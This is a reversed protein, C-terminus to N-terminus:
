NAYSLIHKYRKCLATYDRPSVFLEEIAYMNEKNLDLELNSTQGSRTEYCSEVVYCKNDNETYFSKDEVMRPCYVMVLRYPNGNSDNKRRVVQYFWIDRKM